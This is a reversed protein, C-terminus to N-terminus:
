IDIDEWRKNWVLGLMNPSFMEVLVCRPDINVQNNVPLIVNVPKNEQLDKYVCRKQFTAADFVM